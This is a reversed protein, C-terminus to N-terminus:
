RRRRRRRACCCPMLAGCAGCVLVRAHAARASQHAARAMLHEFGCDVVFHFPSVLAAAKKDAAQVKRAERAVRSAARRENLAAVEEPSMAAARQSPTPRLRTCACTRAADAFARSSALMHQVSRGRAAHQARARAEKIQALREASKEKQAEKKRAKKEAKRVEFEAAKRLKKAQNKSLPAADSPAAAVAAAAAVPLPEDAPAADVPPAAAAATDAM